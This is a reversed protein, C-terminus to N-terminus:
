KVWGELRMFSKCEEFNNNFVTNVINIDWKWGFKVVYKICELFNHDFQQRSYCSTPLAFRFDIYQEHDYSYSVVAHSYDIIYKVCDIHARNFAGAFAAMSIPQGCEEVLYRVCPLSGFRAALLVAEEGLPCGQEVAYRLCHLHGHEAAADTTVEWWPCNQSHLFMLCDLHGNYAAAITANVKLEAHFSHLLRLCDLHGGRCARVVADTHIFCWHSLAFELCDLHGNEAARATVDGNWDIFNFFAYDLCDLHGFEAATTHVTADWIVGESQCYEMCHLHGGRAASRHVATSLACGHEHAYILCDLHGGFAAEECTSEGWPYGHEFLLKLMSLNGMAAAAATCESDSAALGRESSLQILKQALDQNGLRIAQATPSLGSGFVFMLDTLLRESEASLVGAAAGDWTAYPVAICFILVSNPVSDLGWFQMVRLIRQFQELNQVEDTWAFCGEPIQIESSEDDASLAQYFASQHLYVPIESYQVSLM